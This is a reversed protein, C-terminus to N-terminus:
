NIRKKLLNIARTGISIAIALDVFIAISYLSKALVSADRDGYVIFIITRFLQAYLMLFKSLEKNEAVFYYRMYSATKFQTVSISRRKQIEQSTVDVASAFLLKAIKSIRYSFIVDEYAAYNINPFESSYLNLFESKWVSVGNLWQTETDSVSDQYMQVHGSKLVSGYRNSYLGFVRLLNNKIDSYRRFELNNVKLGFGAFDSLKPNKLYKKILTEIAETSITVDDDLFLVWEIGVEIRKIGEIKQIIQGSSELHVHNIKLLKSFNAVTKSVDDGSSVIVTQNINHSSDVLSNLLKTLQQSRNKTAILVALSM